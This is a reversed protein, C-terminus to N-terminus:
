DQFTLLTVVAQDGILHDYAKPKSTQGLRDAVSSRSTMSSNTDIPMTCTPRIRTSTDFDWITTLMPIRSERHILDPMTMGITHMM